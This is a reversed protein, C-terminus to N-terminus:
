RTSVYLGKIQSDYAFPFVALLICGAAFRFISSEEQLKVATVIQIKLEAELQSYDRVQSRNQRSAAITTPIGFVGRLTKLNSM